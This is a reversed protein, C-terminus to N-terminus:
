PMDGPPLKHRVRMQYPHWRLDLRTIRNFTAQPLGIGNRRASTDRPNEHLRTRVREVNEESRGTRRRGSNGKNLNLSTGAEQYKRVNRLITSRAPPPSPRFIKGQFIGSCGKFE